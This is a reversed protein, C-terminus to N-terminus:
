CWSVPDTTSGKAQSTQTKTGSSKVERDETVQWPDSTVTVVKAAVSLSSPFNSSFSAASPHFSMSWKVSQHGTFCTSCPSTLQWMASRESIWASVCSPRLWFLLKTPFPGALLSKYKVTLHHIIGCEKVVLATWICCYAAENGIKPKRVFLNGLEDSGGPTMCM